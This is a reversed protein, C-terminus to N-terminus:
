INCMWGDTFVFGLGTREKPLDKNKMNYHRRCVVDAYQINQLCSVDGDLVNMTLNVIKLNPLKSIFDLDPLENRGRLELYELNKLEAIVSFDTIKPCNEISLMRLTPALSALASIDTLTRMYEIDIWQLNPCNGVGNLSSLGCQSISLKLLEPLDFDEIATIKEKRSRGRGDCKEDVGWMNLHRLSRLKAFCLPSTGGTYLEEIGNKDSAFFHRVGTVRRLSHYRVIGDGNSDPYLTFHMVSPCKELVAADNSIFVASELGYCNILEICERATRVVSSDKVVLADFVRERKLPVFVFGDRVVYGSDIAGKDEVTDYIRNIDFNINLM